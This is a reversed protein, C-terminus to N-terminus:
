ITHVEKEIRRIALAMTLGPIVTTDGIDIGLIDRIHKLRYQVTNAHINMIKATNTTSTGADQIFTELTDMLQRSKSESGESLPRILQQYSSKVGGGDMCISVCNFALAMEYKTFCRKLPFIRPVFDETESITKFGQCISEIGSVGASCFSMRAGAACLSGTLEGWKEMDICSSAGKVFVGAVEDREPQKLSKIGNKEEFSLLQKVAEEGNIGPIYYVGIMDSEKVGVEDLLTQALSRNGRRLAGILESVVDREPSYNWMGMALEIIESLKSLDDQSFSGENDVLLIYYKGSKMSVPRWFTTVGAQGVLVKQLDSADMGVKARVADEVTINHRTEVTFVRNFEETFIVVQFNNNIAAEKLAVQFSPYREFNLLHFITNSILSNSFSEAM